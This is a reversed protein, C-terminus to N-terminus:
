LPDSITFIADRAYGTVTCTSTPSNNTITVRTTPDTPGSLQVTRACYEVRLLTGETAENFQPVKLLDKTPPSGATPPEGIYADYYVKSLLCGTGGTCTPATTCAGTAPCPSLPTPVVQLAPSLTCTNVDAGATLAFPAVVAILVAALTLARSLFNRM